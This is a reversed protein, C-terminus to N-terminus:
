RYIVGGDKLEYPFLSFINEPYKNECFNESSGSFILRGNDLLIIKDAIALADNIDHMVCLVVKGGEAMARVGRNLARRREADLHADAEDLMVAGTDQALLLAFFARQREGGSIRDVRRASLEWAGASKLAENVKEEDAASISGYGGSYPFRGLRVLERVTIQPAPLIQPMLSVLRAAQRASLSRLDEGGASIRGDYKLAGAAARLATTKGSGNKGVMATVKGGAATFSVGDLINKVCVNEFTLNM